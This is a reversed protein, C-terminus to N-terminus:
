RGPGSMYHNMPWMEDIVKDRLKTSSLFGYKDKWRHGLAMSQLGCYHMIIRSGRQKVANIVLKLFVVGRFGEKAPMLSAQGSM